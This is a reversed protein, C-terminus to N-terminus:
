KTKLKKPILQMSFDYLETQGAQQTDYLRFSVTRSSPLALRKVDLTSYGGDTLATVDLIGAGSTGGEDLVFGGADMNFNLINQYGGYDQAIQLIAAATSGIGKTRFFLYRPRKIFHADGHDLFETTYQFAFTATTSASTNDLPVTSGNYTYVKAARSANSATDFVLTPVADTTSRYTTFAHVWPSTHLVWEDVLPDYVMVANNTTGSSYPLSLYYRNNFHFGAFQSSVTKVITGLTKQLKPYAVEQIDVTNYRFVRDRNWFYLWEGVRAVSRFSDTGMPSGKQILGRPASSSVIDSPQSGILQYIRNKTFVIAAGEFEALATIENPFDIANGSTFTDPKGVDSIHLRNRNGSTRAALLMNRYFLTYTATALPTSSTNSWGTTISAGTWLKAQDVGNTVLLSQVTTSGDFASVPTFYVENGTTLTQTTTTATGGSDVYLTVNTGNDLAFILYDTTVSSPRWAFIGRGVETNASARSSLITIGERKKVYVNKGNADTRFEYTFNLNVGDEHSTVSALNKYPIKVPAVEQEPVRVKQPLLGM